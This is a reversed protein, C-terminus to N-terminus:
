NGKNVVKVDFVQDDDGEGSTPAGKGSTPAGGVRFVPDQDGWTSYKTFEKEVKPRYVNAALTEEAKQRAEFASLGNKQSKDLSSLVFAMADGQDTDITKLAEKGSLGFANMVLGRAMDSRGKSTQQSKQQSQKKNDKSIKLTERQYDTMSKDTSPPRKLVDMMYAKNLEGNVITTAKKIDGKRVIDLLNRTHSTDGGLKEISTLRNVLLQEADMTYGNNLMNGVQSLDALAAQKREQSLMKDQKNMQTVFELGEGRTGAAFGQLMRVIKDKSMSTDKVGASANTPYATQGSGSAMSNNGGMLSRAPDANNTAQRSIDRLKQANEPSQYAM